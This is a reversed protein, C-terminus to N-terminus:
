DSLTRPGLPVPLDGFRGKLVDPFEFNGIM